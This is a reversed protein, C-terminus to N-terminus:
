MRTALVAWVDRARNSPTRREPARSLLGLHTTMLGTMPQRQEGLAAVFSSGLELLRLMAAEPLMVSCCMGLPRGELSRAQTSPSEFPSRGTVAPAITMGIWKSMTTEKGLRQDEAKTTVDTQADFGTARSAEGSSLGEARKM